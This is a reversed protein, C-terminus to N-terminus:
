APQSLGIIGSQSRASVPNQTQVIDKKHEKKSIVIAIISAVHAEFAYM